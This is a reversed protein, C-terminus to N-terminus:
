WSPQIRQYVALLGRVFIVYCLPQIIDDYEMTYLHQRCNYLALHATAAGAAMTVCVLLLVMYSNVILKNHISIQTFYITAQQSHVLLAYWRYQLMIVCVM